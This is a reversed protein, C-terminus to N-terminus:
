GIWRLLVGYKRWGDKGVIEPCNRAFVQQRLTNRVHELKVGYVMM